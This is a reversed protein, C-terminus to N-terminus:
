HSYVDGKALHTYRRLASIFHFDQEESIFSLYIFILILVANLRKIGGEIELLDINGACSVEMNGLSFGCVAIREDDFLLQSHRAKIM